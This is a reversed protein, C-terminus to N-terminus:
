DPLGGSGNRRSRRQSTSDGLAMLLFGVIAILLTTVVGSKFADGRGPTGLDPPVVAFVGARDDSDINSVGQIGDLLTGAEEIVTEAARKADRASTGFAEVFITASRSSSSGEYELAFGLVGRETLIAREQDGELVKSTLLALEGLAQPSTFYPNSLPDGGTKPLVAMVAESRYSTDTRLFVAAGGILSILVIPLFWKWRRQLLAAVDELLVRANEWM